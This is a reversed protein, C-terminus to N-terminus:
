RNYTFLEELYADRTIFSYANRCNGEGSQMMSICVGAANADDMHGRDLFCHGLEHFVVYERDLDSAKRWFDLDIYVRNPYVSNQECKGSVNSETIDTLYGEVRDKQYDFSLDYATAELAFREFYPELEAELYITEEKQCSSLVLITGVTLFFYKAPTM